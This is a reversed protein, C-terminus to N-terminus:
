NMAHQSRAHGQDTRRPRNRRPLSQWRIQVPCRRTAPKPNAETEPMQRPERSPAQTAEEPAAPRIEPPAPETVVDVPIERAPGSHNPAEDVLVFALLLCGHALVSAATIKALRRRRDRAAAAPKPATGSFGDGRGPALNREKSSGEPDSDTSL